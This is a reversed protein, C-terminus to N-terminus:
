PQGRKRFLWRGTVLGACYAAYTRYALLAWDGWSHGSM